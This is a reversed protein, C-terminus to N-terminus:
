RVDVAWISNRSPFRNRFGNTFPWHENDRSLSSNSWNLCCFAKMAKYGCLLGSMMGCVCSYLSQIVATAPWWLLMMMVPIQQLRVLSPFRLSSGVISQRRCIVACVISWQKWEIRLLENSDASNDIIIITMRWKWQKCFTASATLDM